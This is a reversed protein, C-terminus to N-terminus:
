PSSAAANRAAWSRRRAARKEAHRGITTTSVPASPGSSAASRITAAMPDDAGPPVPRSRAGPDGRHAPGACRDGEQEVDVGPDVVAEGQEVGAARGLGLEDGHRADAPVHVGALDGLVRAGDELQCPAVVDLHRQAPLRRQHAREDGRRLRVPRLADAIRDQRRRAPRERIAMGRVQEHSFRAAAGALDGEDRQPRGRVQRDGDQALRLQREQKAAPHQHAAAVARRPVRGRRGLPVHRHVGVRHLHREGRERRGLDHRPANRGPQRPEGQGEAQVDGLPRLEQGAVQDRQGPPGARTRARGPVLRERGDAVCATM